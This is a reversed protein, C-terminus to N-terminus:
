SRCAEIKARLAAKVADTMRWRQGEGVENVSTISLGLPTTVRVRLTSIRVQASGVTGAVDAWGLSPKEILALLVRMDAPQLHHRRRFADQAPTFGERDREPQGKRRKGNARRGDDYLRRVPEPRAAPQATAPPQHFFPSVYFAPNGATDGIPRRYNLSM